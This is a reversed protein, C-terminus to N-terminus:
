TLLFLRYGLAKITIFAMAGVAIAVGYCLKPSNVSVTSVSDLQIEKTLVITKLLLWHQKVLRKLLGRHFIFVVVAYIGGAMSAWLFVKVVGVPGVFAGIAGLLKVDGAGMIGLLYPLILLAIGVALGLASFTIGTFGKFWAYYAIGALMAPYNLLNPIKRFRLDSISASVAIVGLSIISFWIEDVSM